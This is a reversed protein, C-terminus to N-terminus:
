DNLFISKTVSHIANDFHEGGCEFGDDLFIQDGTEFTLGPTLDVGNVTLRSGDEPGTATGSFILLRGQGDVPCLEGNLVKIEAITTEIAVDNVQRHEALTPASLEGSSTCGALALIFFLATLKRIQM